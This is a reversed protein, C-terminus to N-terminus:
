QTELLFGLCEPFWCSSGEMVRHDTAPLRPHYVKEKVREAAWRHQKETATSIVIGELFDTTETPKGLSENELAPGTEM